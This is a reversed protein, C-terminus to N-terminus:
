HVNRSQATRAVPFTARM